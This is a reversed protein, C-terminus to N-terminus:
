VSIQNQTNLKQKMNMSKENEDIELETSSCSITTDDLEESMLNSSLNTMEKTESIEIEM